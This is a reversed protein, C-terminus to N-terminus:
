TTLEEKVMLEHAKKLRKYLREEAESLSIVPPNSVDLGPLLLHWPQLDFKTAIKHLTDIGVSTEQDKIRSATGPGIKCDRALKTLNEKGYHKTMVALVNAWLVASVSQQKSM